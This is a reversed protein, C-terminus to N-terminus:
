GAYAEPATHTRRSKWIWVHSNSPFLYAFNVQIVTFAQTKGVPLCASKWRRKMTVRHFKNSEIAVERLLDAAFHMIKRLRQTVSTFIQMDIPYCALRTIEQQPTMWLPRGCLSMTAWFYPLNRPNLVINWCWICILLDHFNQPLGIHISRWSECEGHYQLSSNIPITPSIMSTKKVYYVESLSKGCIVDAFTLNVSWEHRLLIYVKKLLGATLQWNRRINNVTLFYYANVKRLQQLQACIRGPSQDHPCGGLYINWLIAM